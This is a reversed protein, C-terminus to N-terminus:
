LGECIKEFLRERQIAHPPGGNKWIFYYLTENTKSVGKVSLTNKNKISAM